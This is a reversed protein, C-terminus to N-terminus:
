CSSAVVINHRFIRVNEVVGTSTKTVNRGRPVREVWYGGKRSKNNKQDKLPFGKKKKNDLDSQDKCLVLGFFLILDRSIDANESAAESVRVSM